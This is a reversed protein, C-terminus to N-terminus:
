LHTCGCRAKKCPDQSHFEIQWVQTALAKVQQAAEGASLINSKRLNQAGGSGWSVRKKTQQDKKASPPFYM